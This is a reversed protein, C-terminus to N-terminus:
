ALPHVLCFSYRQFSSIEFIVSAFSSYHCHQHQLAKLERSVLSILQFIATFYDCKDSLFPHSILTSTHTWKNVTQIWNTTKFHSSNGCLQLSFANSAQKEQLIGIIERINSQKSCSLTQTQDPTARLVSCM